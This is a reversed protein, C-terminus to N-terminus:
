RTGKEAVAWQRPPLVMATMVAMGQRRLCSSSRPIEDLMRKM